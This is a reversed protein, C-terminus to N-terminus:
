NKQYGLEQLFMELEDCIKDINKSVTDFSSYQNFLLQTIDELSEKPRKMEKLYNLLKKEGKHKQNNVAFIIDFYSELFASIRHNISIYDKRKVAKLIQNKYSSMNRRLIPLNKNIVAMIFERSLPIDYQNKLEKYLNNRDFLIVSNVFNDWIATTYGTSVYLKELTNEFYGKIFDFNRYIIDIETMTEKFKGQDEREWTTNDVEAYCLYRDLIAERKELSLEKNLYIYLDYDSSEDILTGTRSGGLAISEVEELSKFDEVLKVFGIEYNNM